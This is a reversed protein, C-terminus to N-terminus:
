LGRNVSQLEIRISGVIQQAASANLRWNDASAGRLREEMDFLLSELNAVNRSGQRLNGIETRINGLDRQAASAEQSWTQASSIRLRGDLDSLYSQINGLARRAQEQDGKVEEPRHLNTEEPPSSPRCGAAALCVAFVLISNVSMASVQGVDTPINLCASRHFLGNARQFKFTFDARM